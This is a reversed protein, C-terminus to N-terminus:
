ILAAGVAGIFHETQYEGSFSSGIVYWPLSKGALFFDSSSKKKKRGFYYGILSILVLYVFFVAYDWFVLQINSSDGM